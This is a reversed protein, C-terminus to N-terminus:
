RQPVKCQCGRVNITFEVVLARCSPHSQGCKSYKYRGVVQMRGARADVDVEVDERNAIDRVRIDEVTEAAFPRGTRQTERGVWGTTAGQRRRNM